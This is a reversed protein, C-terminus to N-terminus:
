NRKLSPPKDQRKRKKLQHLIGDYAKLKESDEKKNINNNSKIHLTELTALKQRNPEQQIVRLNGFDIRHHMWANHATVGSKDGLKILKEIDKKRTKDAETEWAEMMEERSMWIDFGLKERKNHFNIVDARHQEERVTAHNGTMGFYEYKCDLCSLVYIVSSKRGTPTPDKVKTHLSKITKTNKYTIQVEDTMAKVCKSIKQSVGNIMPISRYQKAKPKEIAEIRPAELKKIFNNFLKKIFFVPYNNKKLIDL